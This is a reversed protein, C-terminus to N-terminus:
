REFRELTIAPTPKPESPKPSELTSEDIEVFAHMACDALLM